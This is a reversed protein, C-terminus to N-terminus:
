RCRRRLFCNDDDDQSPNFNPFLSDVMQGILGDFAPDDLDAALDLSGRVATMLGQNRCFAAAATLPRNGGAGKPLKMPLRCLESNLFSTPPDFVFVVRFDTDASDDPDTTFNTPQPKPPHYALLDIMGAQFVEDGLDFPDGRFQTWLDRGGAGRGYETPTYIQRVTEGYTRPTGVCGSLVVAALIIVALCRM